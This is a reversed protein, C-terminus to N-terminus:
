LLYVLGYYGTYTYLTASETEVLRTKLESGKFNLVYYRWRTSDNKDSTIALDSLVPDSFSSSTYKYLRLNM